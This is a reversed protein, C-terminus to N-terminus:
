LGEGVSVLVTAGINRLHDCSGTVRLRKISFAKM